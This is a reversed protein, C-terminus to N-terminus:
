EFKYTLKVNFYKELDQEMVRIRNHRETLQARDYEYTNILNKYRELMLQKIERAKM